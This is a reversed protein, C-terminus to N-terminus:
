SIIINSLFSETLTLRTLRVNWFKINFIEVIFLRRSLSRNILLFFFIGSGNSFVQNFPLMCNESVSQFIFELLTGPGQRILGRTVVHFARKQMVALESQSVLIQM